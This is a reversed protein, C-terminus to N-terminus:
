NWISLPLKRGATAIRVDARLQTKITSVRTTTDIVNLSYKGVNKFTNIVDRKKHHRCGQHFKWCIRFFLMFANQQKLSTTYKSINFTNLTHTTNTQTQALHHPRAYQPVRNLLTGCHRNAPHLLSRSHLHLILGASLTSKLLYIHETSMQCLWLLWGAHQM